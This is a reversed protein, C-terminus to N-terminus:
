ATGGTTIPQTPAVLGEFGTRAPTTGVGPCGAHPDTSNARMFPCTGCYHEAPTLDFMGDIGNARVHDSIAQLRFWSTQAIIPDYPESWWFQDKLEGSSPLFNIAVDKVPLGLMTAGMGYLHLQARYQNGPGKSRKNKLSTPSVIKHDILTATPAHYLDFSGSIAVQELVGVTVRKETVWHLGTDDSVLGLLILDQDWTDAARQLWDHVATGVISRWNTPTDRKPHEALTYGIYRECPVGIESPGIRTQRQRPNAHYAHEIMRVVAKRAEPWGDQVISIGTM